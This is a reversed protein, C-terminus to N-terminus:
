LGLGYVIFEEVAGQEPYESVAIGGFVNDPFVRASITYRENIFIEVSSHDLVIDIHYDCGGKPIKVEIQETGVNVDQTSRSRDLLIKHVTHDIILETYEAGNWSAFMKIGFRGNEPLRVRCCIEGQLCAALWQEQGGEESVKDGSTHLIQNLGQYLIKKRLKRCEKALRIHLGDEELFVERPLSQMGAWGRHYTCSMRDWEFLCGITLYRGEPDTLYTNPAYFGRKGVSYDFVGEQEVAFEWTDKKLEGICYRTGELPAYLIVYKEGFKLMNPCELLEYEQSTYLISCFSWERLNQSKYLGICGRKELTGSLLMFYEDEKWIFPDRWMRIDGRLENPLAPKGIKKWHNMDGDCVACWQQAGDEPGREGQGVSTYFLYVQNDRVAACGSYCHLEGEEYSPGLAIPCEEWHLLDRSKAHGWHIDGWVDGGPNYQYFMHYWGDVYILGNPDNMWNKEPRYHYRPYFKDPYYKDRYYRDQYLEDGM